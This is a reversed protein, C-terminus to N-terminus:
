KSLRSVDSANPQDDSLAQEIKVEQRLYEPHDPFATPYRFLLTQADRDDPDASLSWAAGTPMQSAIAKLLAPQITNAVYAQAM